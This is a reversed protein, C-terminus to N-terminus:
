DGCPEPAHLAADHLPGQPGGTGSHSQCASRADGPTLLLYTTPRARGAPEAESAASRAARLRACDEADPPTRGEPVAGAGGGRLHRHDRLAAALRTTLPIHRLRGGKPVTVQGKWDSRQVCLHRKDLDLDTWELAMMEGCRLGSDGGLLVVLYARDDVVKAAAVLRDYSEFDHFAAVTHPTPLLRVTCPLRDIVDWEVAVKLLTNLVTLVNNVTKPAKRHLRGKM